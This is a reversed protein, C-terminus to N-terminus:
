ASGTSRAIVWANTDMAEKTTPSNGKRLAGSAYYTIPILLNEVIGKSNAEAEQESIAVIEVIVNLGGHVAVGNIIDVEDRIIVTAQKM